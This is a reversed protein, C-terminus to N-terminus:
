NQAAELKHGFNNRVRVFKSNLSVRVHSFWSGVSLDSVFGVCNSVNEYVHALVAKTEASICKGKGFVERHDDSYKIPKSLKPPMGGRM